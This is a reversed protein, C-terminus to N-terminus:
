DLRWSSVVNRGNTKSEYLAQDAYHYIDKLEVEDSAFDVYCLGLSLTVKNYPKNYLHELELQAINHRVSNAYEISHAYDINRFLLGFEEGGLRFVYDGSRKLSAKFSKAVGQLVIDGMDHGYNDNYLKFNDLDMMLFSLSTQMEKAKAYEEKFVRNFHRRNYVNTLEDIISIEELKKQLLQQQTIDTFTVIYLLEGDFKVLSAIVKFYYQNEKYQILVKSDPNAIAENIWNNAKSSHLFHSDEVYEFLDCICRYHKKFEKISSFEPFYRFFQHNTSLIEHANSVVIINPNNDFLINLYERNKNRIRELSKRKSIDQHTGSLRLANGEKDREIVAGSAEIWVYEGNKDMLRYEVNFHVDEEIAQTIKPMIHSKDIPHLRNLLDKVTNTISGRQLKLMELWRQNVYYKDTALEWDWYGMNSGEIVNSLKKNYRQLENNLHDLKQTQAKVKKDLLQNIKTVEEHKKLWKYLVIIFLSWFILALFTMGYLSKKSDSLVDFYHSADLTIAIGGRLDGVQYGQHAHCKLCAQAVRLGGVFRLKKQGEFFKYAFEEQKQKELYELGEKFFGEAQNDPNIPLNSVIAFRMTKSELLESLQRTMWAPNIKVLRQNHIDKLTNDILYPNPTLNPNDSYINGYKANWMRANKINIFHVNANDVLSAREKQITKHTSTYLYIIFFVFVISVILALFYFKRNVM